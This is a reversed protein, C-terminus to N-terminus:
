QLTSKYQEMQNADIEMKKYKECMSAVIGIYLSYTLFVPLLM